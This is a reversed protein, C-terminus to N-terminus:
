HRRLFTPADARGITAGATEAEAIVQDVEEPSRADHALTVRGWGGQASVVSDEALTDRGWLAPIMGGALFFV